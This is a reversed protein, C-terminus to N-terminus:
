IVSVYANDEETREVLHGIPELGKFGNKEAEVLFEEVHEDEVAVLLGGSTQPDCLLYRVDDPMEAIKSGYSDWNRHTGGPISGKAIFFEVGDFKPVAQYDVVANVNSGECIELLHGMLGFGTVDTMSKIYPLKGFEYGVKNLECMLEVVRTNDKHEILNKKEATTMVGIGLPKTIFLTCGPKATNNQKVKETDVIGNVSLGFVPDGINISHGGALQIGAEACVSRAGEIVKKALEVPLKELPWALIALAMIPKGGMAYVDSIANTAAIRGFDYPDDVIPTFFDTTSVIAQGNGLDYVAADDKSDNGVLLNIDAAYVCDSKLIKELEKPAIKCGCGAGPSFQTLKMEEM